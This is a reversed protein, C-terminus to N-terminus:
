DKMRECENVNESERKNIREKKSKREMEVMWERGGKREMKNISEFEREKENKRENIRGRIM